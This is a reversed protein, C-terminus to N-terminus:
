LSFHIDGASTAKSFTMRDDKGPLLLGIFFAKIYGFAFWELSSDGQNETKAPPFVRIRGFGCAVFFGRVVRTGLHEPNVHHLRATVKCIWGEAITIHRMM